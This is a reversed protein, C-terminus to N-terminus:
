MFRKAAVTPAGANGTDAAGKAKNIVQGEYKDKWTVAFAPETIGADLEPITLGGVTFVKNIENEDRTEGTPHYQNDGGLSTKDVTQKLVGLAVEKGLLNTVMPVTTPVEGGADKSYLKIVKNEVVADAIGGDFGASRFIDNVNTFGPLNHQKGDKEYYTKNGKAKGSVFYQTSRLSGKDSKFHMVLARAGSAATSMYALEVNMLHIGSDLLQFGGIRDTEKEAQTAVNVGDLLSM